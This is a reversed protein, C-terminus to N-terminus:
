EAIRPTPICNCIFILIDQIRVDQSPDIHVLVAAARINSGFLSNEQGLCSAVIETPGSTEPLPKTAICKM